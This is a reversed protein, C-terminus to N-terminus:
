SAYTIDCQLLTTARKFNWTLSQSHKSAFARGIQQPWAIPNSLPALKDAYRLIHTLSFCCASYILKGTESHSLLQWNTNVRYMRRKLLRCYTRMTSGATPVPKPRLVNFRSRLCSISRNRSSRLPQSSSFILNVSWQSYHCILLSVVTCARCDDSLSSTKLHLGSILSTSVSPVKLVILFCLVTLSGLAVALRKLPVGM